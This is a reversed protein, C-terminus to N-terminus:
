ENNDHDTQEDIIRYPIKHYVEFGNDRLWMEPTLLVTYGCGNEVLWDYYNQRPLSFQSLLSMIVGGHLVAGASTIRNEMMDKFIGELGKRCRDNFEKTSEGGPARGGNQKGEVFKLFEPDSKLESIKRGSFVGFDFEKLDDVEQRFVDPYIIDATEKCRKLPSIYLKQIKPYDFDSFLKQIQQRGEECLSLDERQGMFRGDLNGQTLGHRILHLQYTIM